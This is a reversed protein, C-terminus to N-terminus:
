KLNIRNKNSISCSYDELAIGQKYCSDIKSQDNMINWEAEPRIIFANYWNAVKVQVGADRAWLMPEVQCNVRSVNIFRDCWKEFLESSMSLCYDELMDYQYGEHTFKSLSHTYLVNNSLEIEKHQHSPIVDPRTDFVLDYKINLERERKRKYPLLQYLQYTPGRDSNYYNAEDPSTYVISILNRGEFRSVHHEKTYEKVNWTSLYYDVNHSISEYFKFAIPLCKQYTRMHGRLFVGIHKFPKTM